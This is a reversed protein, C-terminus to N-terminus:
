TTRGFVRRLPFRILKGREALWLKKPAQFTAPVRFEIVRARARRGSWFQWRAPTSLPNDAFSLGWLANFPFWPILSISM